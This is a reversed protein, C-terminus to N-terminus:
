LKVTVRVNAIRIKSGPFDSLTSYDVHQLDIGQVSLGTLMEFKMCLAMIENELCKRATRAEVVTVPM